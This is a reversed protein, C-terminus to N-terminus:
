PGPILCLFLSGEPPRKEKKQGSTLECLVCAHYCPLPSTEERAGATERTKGRHVWPLERVCTGFLLGRFFLWLLEARMSKRIYSDVDPSRVVIVLTKAPKNAGQMEDFTKEASCKTRAGYQKGHAVEWLIKLGVCEIVAKNTKGECTWIEM